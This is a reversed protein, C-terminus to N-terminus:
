QWGRGGLVAIFEVFTGINLFRAAFCSGRTFRRTKVCERGLGSRATFFSFVDAFIEVLNVFLFTHKSNTNRIKTTYEGPKKEVKTDASCLASYWFPLM